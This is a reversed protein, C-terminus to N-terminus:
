AAYEKRRPMVTPLRGGAAMRHRYMAALSEEIADRYGGAGTEIVASFGNRKRGTFEGLQWVITSDVMWYKIGCNLRPCRVIQHESEDAFIESDISRCVFQCITAWAARPLARPKGPIIRNQM